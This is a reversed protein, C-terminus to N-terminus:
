QGATNIRSPLEQASIKFAERGGLPCEAAGLGYFAHNPVFLASTM